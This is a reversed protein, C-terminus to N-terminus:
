RSRSQNLISSRWSVYSSLPQLSVRTEPNKNEQRLRALYNVFATNAVFASRRLPAYVLFRKQNVPVVYLQATLRTFRDHHIDGHRTHDADTLTAQDSTASSGDSTRVSRRSVM